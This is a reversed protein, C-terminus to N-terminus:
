FDNKVKEKRIVELDAGQPVHIIYTIDQETTKGNIKFTKDALPYFVVTKGEEPKAVTNFLGKSVFWALKEGGYNKPTITTVVKMHAQEWEVVEVNMGLDVVIKDGAEINFSKSTVLNDSQAFTAALLTTMLALLVTLKKM